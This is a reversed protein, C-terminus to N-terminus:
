SISLMHSTGRLQVRSNECISVGLRHCSKLIPCTFMLYKKKVYSFRIKEIGFGIYQSLIVSFIISYTAHKKDVLEIVVIKHM